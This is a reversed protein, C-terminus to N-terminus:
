APQRRMDRLCDLDLPAEGGDGAHSLRQGSDQVLQRRAHDEDTAGTMVGHSALASTALPKGRRAAEVIRQVAAKYDVANVTIGLVPHAGHDIMSYLYASPPAPMPPHLAGM